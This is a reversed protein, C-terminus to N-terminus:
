DDSVEPNIRNRIESIVELPEELDESLDDISILKEDFADLIFLTYLYGNRKLAKSAQKKYIDPKDSSQETKDKVEKKNSTNKKNSKKYEAILKNWEGKKENFQKNSILKLDLLRRIIVEQSVRFFKSLNKIKNDLTNYMENFRIDIEKSPVLSEAAIKNCTKENNTLFYTDFNSFGENKCIIHALEHFLTFKKGNDYERNNIGIIPLKDFYLAYGRVEKPDINYFQFVLIGLKEVEKIWYDLKKRRRTYPTLGLSNQIIESIEHPDNTEVDKLKFNSIQFDDSEKELNLLTKRRLNANRIELSFEPTIKYKRKSGVTRLDPIFIPKTPENVNFFTAPPRSYLKALKLLNQYSIQGTEEWEKITKADEDM